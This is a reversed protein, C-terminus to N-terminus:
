VCAEDPKLWYRKDAKEQDRMHDIKEKPSDNPNDPKKTM